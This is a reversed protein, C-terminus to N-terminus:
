LEQWELRGIERRPLSQGDYGNPYPGMRMGTWFPDRAVFWAQGQSDIIEIAITRNTAPNIVYSVTPVQNPNDDTM